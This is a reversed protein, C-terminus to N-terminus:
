AGTSILLPPQFLSVYGAAIYRERAPQSYWSGGVAGKTDRYPDGQGKSGRKHGERPQIVSGLQQAESDVM